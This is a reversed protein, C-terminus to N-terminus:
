QQIRHLQGGISYGDQQERTSVRAFAVAKLNSNQNMDKDKILYNTM